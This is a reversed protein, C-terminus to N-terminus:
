LFVRYLFIEFPFKVDRGGQGHMTQLFNMEAGSWAHGAPFEDRGRVM